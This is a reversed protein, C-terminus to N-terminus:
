LYNIALIIELNADIAYDHYCNLRYGNEIEVFTWGLCEIDFEYEDFQEEIDYDFGNSTGNPYNPYNHSHILKETNDSYDVAVEAYLANPYLFIVNPHASIADFAKRNVYENHLIIIKDFNQLVEPNKDVDIDTIFNYGLEYLIQTM